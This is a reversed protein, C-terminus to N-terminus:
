AGLAARLREAREHWFEAAYQPMVLDAMDALTASIAERLRENEAQSETYLTLLATVYEPDRELIRDLDDLTLPKVSV